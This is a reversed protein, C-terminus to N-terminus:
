CDRVFDYGDFDEPEFGFEGANEEHAQVVTIESVSPLMAIQSLQNALFSRGIVAPGYVWMGHQLYEVAFVEIM